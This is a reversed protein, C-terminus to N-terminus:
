RPRRRRRDLGPQWARTPSSAHCCQAALASPIRSAGLPRVPGTIACTRVRDANRRRDVAPARGRESPVPVAATHSPADDAAALLDDVDRLDEVLRDTLAHLDLRAADRLALFLACRLGRTTLEREFPQPLTFKTVDADERRRTSAVGAM